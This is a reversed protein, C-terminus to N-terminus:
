IRLQSRKHPQKRDKRTKMNLFRSNMKSCIPGECIQQSFDHRKRVIEMIRSERNDMMKIIWFRKGDNAGIVPCWGLSVTLEMDRLAGERWQLGPRAHRALCLQVNTINQKQGHKGLLQSPLVLLIKLAWPRAGSGTHISTRPASIWYLTLQWGQPPSCWPAAHCQPSRAQGSSKLASHFHLAM